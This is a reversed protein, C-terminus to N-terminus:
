AADAPEAPAPSVISEYIKGAAAMIGGYYNFDHLKTVTEFDGEGLMKSYADMVFGYVANKVSLSEAGQEIDGYRDKLRSEVEGKIESYVDPFDGLAKGHAGELEDDSVSGLSMITREANGLVRFIGEEIRGVIQYPDLEM